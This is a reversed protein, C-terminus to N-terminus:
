VTAPSKQQASIREPAGFRGSRPAQSCVYRVSLSVVIVLGRELAQGSNPDYPLAAERVLRHAAATVSTARGAARLGPHILPQRGSLPTGAQAMRIKATRSIIAPM